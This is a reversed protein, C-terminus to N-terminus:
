LLGDISVFAGDEGLVYNFDTLVCVFFVCFVLDFSSAEFARCEGEVTACFVIM